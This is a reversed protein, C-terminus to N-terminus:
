LGLFSFFINRVSGLGSFKFCKLFETDLAPPAVLYKNIMGCVSLNMLLPLFELVFREIDAEAPLFGTLFSSKCLKTSYQM